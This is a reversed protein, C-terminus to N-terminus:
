ASGGAEHQREIKLGKDEADDENECTQLENLLCAETHMQLAFPQVPELSGHHQPRQDRDKAGVDHGEHIAALQLVGNCEERRRLCIGASRAAILLWAVAPHRGCTALGEFGIQVCLELDIVPLNSRADERRSFDSAVAAGDLM